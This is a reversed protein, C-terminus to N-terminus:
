LWASGQDAMAASVLISIVLAAAAAVGIAKRKMLGGEDCGFATPTFAVGQLGVMYGGTTSRDFM